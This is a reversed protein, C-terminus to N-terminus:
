LSPTPLSPMPQTPVPQIPVPQQPTTPTVSPSLQPSPAEAEPLEEQTPQCTLQYGSTQQQMQEFTQPAPPLVESVLCDRKMVYGAPRSSAGLWRTRLAVAIGTQNFTPDITIQWLRKERPLQDSYVTDIIQQNLNAEVSEVTNFWRQVEIWNKGILERRVAAETADALAFARSTPRSIPNLRTVFVSRDFRDALLNPYDQLLDQILFHFQFWSSILSNILFLLVLEQVGESAPLQFTFGPRIFKSYSAFVAAFIPWSILASRWDRILLDNSGLAICTLAAAIWPGPMFKFGLLPLSVKQRLFAWDVGVILFLWAFFSIFRKVYYGQVLLFAFWSFLSLLLLMEWSFPKINNLWTQLRQAGERITKSVNKILVFDLLFRTLAGM